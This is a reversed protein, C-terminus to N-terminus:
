FPKEIDKSTFVEYKTKSIRGLAVIENESKGWGGPIKKWNKM